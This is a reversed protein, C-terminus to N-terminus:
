SRRKREGEEDEDENERRKVVFRRGNNVEYEEEEEEEESEENYVYPVYISSKLLTPDKVNLDEVHDAFRYSRSCDDVFVHVRRPDNSAGHYEGFGQIEFRRITNGEPNFYYVYFPQGSTYDAMSLVIEGTSIVGVVSVYSPFLKDGKLAYAYKSWEQKEVDELVWVRLEVADDSFKNRSEGECESTDGLYYLVGNICLGESMKVVLGLSCDVKRWRAGRAGLTMVRLIWPLTEYRGTKPNCVVPAEDKDELGTIMGYFYVLGSAYGCAFQRDGRRFIRM